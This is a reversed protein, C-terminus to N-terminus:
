VITGCANPSREYVNVNTWGKYLTNCPILQGTTHWHHLYVMSSASLSRRIYRTAIAWCSISTNWNFMAWCTWARRLHLLPCRLRYNQVVAQIWLRLCYSWSITSSRHSSGYEKLFKMRMGIIGSVSTWHNCRTLLLIVLCYVHYLSGIEMHVNPSRQLNSHKANKHFKNFAPRASFNITM